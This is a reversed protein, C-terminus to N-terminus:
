PVRAFSLGMFFATCMLHSFLIFLGLPIPTQVHKKQQIEDLITPSADILYQLIYPKMSKLVQKM